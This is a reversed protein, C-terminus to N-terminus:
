AEPSRPESGTAAFTASCPPRELGNRSIGIVSNKASSEIATSRVGLRIVAEPMPAAIMTTM